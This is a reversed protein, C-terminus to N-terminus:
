TVQTTLIGVEGEAAVGDPLALPGPYPLPVYDPNFYHVVKVQQIEAREEPTANPGPFGTTIVIEKLEDTIAPFFMPDIAFHIEILQIGVPTDFKAERAWQPKPIRYEPFGKIPYKRYFNTITDNCLIQNMVLWTARDLTAQM